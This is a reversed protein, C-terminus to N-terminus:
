IQMRWAISERLESGPHGSPTIAWTPSTTRSDIRNENKTSIRGVRWLPGTQDFNVMQGFKAAEVRSNQILVMTLAVPSSALTTKSLSAWALRRLLRQLTPIPLDAPAAPGSDGRTSLWPPEVRSLRTPSISSTRLMDAGAGTGQALGQALGHRPATRAALSAASLQSANAFCSRM